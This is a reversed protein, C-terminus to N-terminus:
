KSSPVSAPGTETIAPAEDALPLRVTFCAGEGPATRLDIAGRHNRTVIFYSVSLGLGTGEGPSKTSFFPEFVRRSVDKDMGPGNDEVSISAFSGERRTRLTIRAPPSGATRLALAQAANRMLNLLVQEIETSSCPVDPVDPEYDRIIEIHRFDYKKKLDYDTSAINVVREALEALNVNSRDEVATRTFNLMNQVIRAAREGSDRIGQLFEGIQRKELFRGLCSLDIGCELANDFNASLAPDLRRQINQVGQLIGALPNNIEHAMGAALGGLSMMKETQIILHEFKLRDTVDDLRLFAWQTDQSRVPFVLLDYQRSKGLFEFHLGTRSVPEMKELADRISNRYAALQPLAKTLPCGLMDSAGLGTQIETTRNWHTILEGGDIGIMLSPMSDMVSQIRDRAQRLQESTLQLDNLKGRLESVMSDISEQLRELEIPANGLSLTAGDGQFSSVQEAYRKIQQLPRIVNKKLIFWLLCVIALNVVVTQSIITTLSIRMDRYLFRTTVWVDITAVSRGNFVVESDNHIYDGVPPLSSVKVANWKEDRGYIALTRGTLEDHLRICAIRRDVMISEIVKEAQEYQFNWIPLALGLAAQNTRVQLDDRLENSSTSYQNIFNVIGFVALVMTTISILVVSITTAVTKKKMDIGTLLRFLHM